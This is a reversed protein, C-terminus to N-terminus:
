DGVVIGKGVMVTIAGVAALFSPVGLAAWVRTARLFAETPGTGEAVAREAERRLVHQLWFAPLWTLGALVYLSGGVLVWRTTLAIGAVKCLTIGTLPLAIGSPITFLWDARVIGRSAFLVARPDGSLDATVKYFVSAMGAGLFLTASLIHLVKLVLFAM